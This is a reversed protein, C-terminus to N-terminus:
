LLFQLIVYLYAVTLIFMTFYMWFLQEEPVRKFNRKFVINQKSTTNYLIVEMNESAHSILYYWLIDFIQCSEVELIVLSKLSQLM